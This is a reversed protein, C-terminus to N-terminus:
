NASPVEHLPAGLQRMTTAFGPFSDRACAAGAILTEGHALLAAIALSMAIRHDDHSSLRAGRLGQPGRCVFGDTKEELQAGMRQLALAMVALRDSEKVRLEAAERLRTEGEAQTAAVMLLPIEDILRPILEGGLEIGRLPRARVRIEGVPEGAEEGTENVLIDAGMGLLADLLGTRTPNLNVGLLTVDSGPLLAAAVLPFAASSFDGPIRLTLARLENGPQLVVTNGERALDAGMALLMRETHDRTAQPEEIATAGHAQLGALLIASKVQASAIPLRYRIGQLRAPQIRLPATDGPANINAGMQQLPAIIRRMPRRRLQASGDLVSSFPQGALIGALLRFGTGAHGLHLTASPKRLADGRLRLEGQGKQIDSGLAQCAGLTAETDGAALWGRVKTEGKALLGLLLARHSLSKDGPITSQGRLATSGGCARLSIDRQEPYFARGKARESM